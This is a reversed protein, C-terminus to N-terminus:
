CLAASNPKPVTSIGPPLTDDKRALGHMANFCRMAVWGREGAVKLEEWTREVGTIASFLKAVTQPSYGGFIMMTPTLCIGVEDLMTKLDESWACNLYKDDEILPNAAKESGVLSKTVEVPLRELVPLSKLHDAGRPSIACGLAFSKAARVDPMVEAVGKVSGQPPDYEPGMKDVAGKVGLALVAGIGERKVIKDFLKVAAEENGWVLELGDTDKKTILGKEYWYFAMGIIAGVEIQDIGYINCQDTMYIGYEITPMDHYASFCIAAPLEPKEGKAGAYPGERVDHFIICSVPCGFCGRKTVQHKEHLNNAFAHGREADLLGTQGGRLPLIGMAAYVEVLALAGQKEVWERMPNARYSVMAEEFADIAKQPNAIKVTKSGRVAIAKLNKSGMVTGMGGGRGGARYRTGIVAGFPVGVESGPGIVATKVQDDRLEEKLADDTEWCTKGWLHDARRIEVMDDDIWIYVPSAARGKIIIHDYGAFKMESGFHGGLNTDGFARTLVSKSTITWRGCSPALTGVLPGVGIIFANDPGLPDTDTTVEDFLFRANLGGGGIYQLALDMPLPDKRIKGTTLDVRLITGQWGFM